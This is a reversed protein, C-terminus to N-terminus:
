FDPKGAGGEHCHGVFNDFAKEDETTLKHVRTYSKNCIGRIFLKM